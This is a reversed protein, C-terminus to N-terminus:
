AEATEDVFYFLLCRVQGFDTPQVVKRLAKGTRFDPSCEQGQTISDVKGRPPPASGKAPDLSWPRKEKRPQVRM